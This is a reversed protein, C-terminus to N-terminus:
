YLLIYLNLRQSKEMYILKLISVFNIQFIRDYQCLILNFKFGKSTKKERGHFGSPFFM